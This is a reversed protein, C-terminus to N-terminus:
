IISVTDTWYADGIAVFGSFSFFTEALKKHRWVYGTEFHSV